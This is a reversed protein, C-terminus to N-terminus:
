CTQLPQGWVGPKLSTLAALVTVTELTRLFGRPLALLLSLGPQLHGLPSYRGRNLLSLDSWRPACRAPIVSAQSGGAGRSALVPVRPALVGYVVCGARPGQGGHRVKHCTVAEGGLNIPRRPWAPGILNEGPVEPTHAHLRDSLLRPQLSLKTCVRGPGALSSPTWSFGPSPAQCRLQGHSRPPSLCCHASPCLHSVRHARLSLARTDNM